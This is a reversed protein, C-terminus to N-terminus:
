KIEEIFDLPGLSLVTLDIAALAETFPGFCIRPIQPMFSKALINGARMEDEAEVSYLKTEDESLDQISFLYKM